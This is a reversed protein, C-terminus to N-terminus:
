LKRKYEEIMKVAEERTIFNLPQWFDLYKAVVDLETKSVSGAVEENLKGMKESLESFQLRLDSLDTHLVRIEEFVDKTDKLLNQEIFQSKKRISSYRDELLRLRRMVDDLQKSFGPAPQKEQPKPEPKTEQKADVM